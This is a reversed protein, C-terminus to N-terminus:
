AKVLGLRCTLGPHDTAGHEEGWHRTITDHEVLNTAIWIIGVHFVQLGVTRALDAVDFNADLGIVPKGVKNRARVLNDAFQDLRQDQVRPPPAHCSMPFAVKGSARHTLKATAIWRALMEGKVEDCGFDLWHDEVRWVDTDVALCSGAKAESSTNQLSKWGKPLKDALVFDKAEQLMMVSGWTAIQDVYDDNRGRNFDLNATTFSERPEDAM